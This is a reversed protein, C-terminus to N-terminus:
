NEDPEVLSGFPTTSVCPFMMAFARPEDSPAFNVCSSTLRDHIGSVCSMPSMPKWMKMNAFRMWLWRMGVSSKMRRGSSHNCNADRMRAVMVHEGADLELQLGFLNAVGCGFCLDHHTVPM